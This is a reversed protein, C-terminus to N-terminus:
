VIGIEDSKAVDDVDDIDKLFAAIDMGSAELGVKVLARITAARSPMKNEFRWADIIKLEVDSLM